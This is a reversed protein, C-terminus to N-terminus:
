LLSRCQNCLYNYICSHYSWSGSREYRITSQLHYIQGHSVVPRHNEGPLGTEEM